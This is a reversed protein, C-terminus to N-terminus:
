NTYAIHIWVDIKFLISTSNTQRLNNKRYLFLFFYMYISIFLKEVIYVGRAIFFSIMPNFFSAFIHIGYVHAHPFFVM